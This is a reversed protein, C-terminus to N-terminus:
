AGQQLPARGFLNVVLAQFGAKLDEVSVDPCRDAWVRADASGEALPLANLFGYELATDRVAQRFLGQATPSGVLPLTRQWMRQLLGAYIELLVRRQNVYNV